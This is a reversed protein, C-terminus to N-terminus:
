QAGEDPTSSPRERPEGAASAPPIPYPGPREIPAPPVVAAWAEPPASSGWGAPPAPPAFPEVVGIARTEDMPSVVDTSFAPAPPGAPTQPLSPADLRATAPGAALSQRRRRARRRIVLAIAVALLALALVAVGIGLVRQQGAAAANALQDRVTAASQTASAADGAEWATRATVLAASPDEGVLGLGVIWDRPAANAAAATDIAGLAGLLATEDDAAKILTAGTSASQYADRLSAPVALGLAAAETRIADRFRVAAEAQTIADTAAAFDWDDLSMRVVVPAAWDGDEAELAHYASRAAARPTLLARDAPTLAWPAIMEAIGTGGGVEEALDVFRRWDSPLASKEPTSAGPYATTGADAAAFVRRMGPEGVESVVERVLNWSADYAWQEKADQAKSRIAAPPGWADLPFAAAASTRVEHPGDVSVGLGTLTRYAYEDALGETIWRDSFLSANFWAHSAEHVITLPDLDESITIQHSDPSYFGAYGELLASSVEEVTLQGSVPWPLGIRQVLAPIGSTLAQSVRRQWTPDEPWARVVVQESAPLKLTQRTLAADNRADVWAYWSGPDAATATLVHEGGSGAAQTMPEGAAEVRFAAPVHVTVTGRDGFAWAMFTTYALGVRVASTSRPAGAPLVYALHLHVTEGSYLRAAFQVMLLRYGDRSATTVRDRVGGEDASAQTAEPQVALNIGPYYYRAGPVVPLRNVGTIDISVRVKRAAPDVTYTTASTVDLGDVAATVPNPWGTLRPAAAVPSRFAATPRRAAAPTSIFASRALWPAQAVTPAPAALRPAVIASSTSPTPASSAPAASPGALSAAVAVVALLM